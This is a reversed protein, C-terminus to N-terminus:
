MWRMQHVEEIATIGDIAKKLGDKILSPTGTSRILRRLEDESAERDIAEVLTHSAVAVEFAGVRGRYGTNRCNDCGRAQYLQAPVELDHDALLQRADDSIPALERCQHCLQRVLRQSIIGTLNGALSRPSVGLDRLATVTSAVDRTHLTSFVYKGSSAARMAMEATQADRIEGVFVVDPDMRLMTRLGSNLTIGHAEDVSMQRLFPCNFEVPDEITVINRHQKPPELERLMSYVTTTKGAGTPGTVLVIGEGRHLMEEISARTTATLGLNDLPRFMTGRTQLRLCVSEGGAVPSTTIRVQCDSNSHPLRLRGEHPRFPEAIDLDGLIKFQQLLHVALDADLDCYHELRGDIRLRVSYRGDGTPDIHIDTARLTQARQLLDLAPTTATTQEVQTVIQQQESDQVMQPRIRWVTDATDARDEDSSEDEAGYALAKAAELQGLLADANDSSLDFRSVLVDRMQLRATERDEALSEGFEEQLAEAVQILSFPNTAHHHPVVMVACPATKLVDDAVDHGVLRAFGTRDHSGLVILDVANEQAYRAIQKATSGERVEWRCSLKMVQEPPLLQELREKTRRITEQPHGNQEKKTLVHLLHLEAEHQEALTSASRTVSENSNGFKCAVLIKHLENMSGEADHKSVRDTDDRKLFFAFSMGM